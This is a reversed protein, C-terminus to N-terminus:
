ADLGRVQQVQSVALGGNVCIVCPEIDIVVGDFVQGDDAAPFPRDADGKGGSLRIFQVFNCPIDGHIGFLCIGRESRLVAESM